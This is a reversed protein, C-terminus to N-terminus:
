FLVELGALSYLGGARIVLEIEASKDAILKGGKDYLKINIGQSLTQPFTSFFIYESDDDRNIRITHSKDEEFVINPNIDPYTYKDSEIPVYSATGAFYEEDAIPSVVVYDWKSILSEDLVLRVIAVVQQMNVVAPNDVEFGGYPARIGYYPAVPAGTNVPEIKTKVRGLHDACAVVGAPYSVEYREAMPVAVSLEGYFEDSRQLTYNKGNVSIVTGEKIPNEDINFDAKTNSGGRIILYQANGGQQYEIQELVAGSADKFIVHSTRTDFSDNAPIHVTIRYAPGLIQEKTATAGELDTEVTFNITSLVPLTTDISGSNSSTSPNTSGDVPQQDYTEIGGIIFPVDWRKDLYKYFAPVTSVALKKDSYYKALNEIVRYPSIDTLNAKVKDFVPASLDGESEIDSVIEQVLTTVESASRGNQIMCAFALLMGDADRTGTIDMDDFNGASGTFGMAKTLENQAQSVADDYSKGEKMLKKVRPRIATTMLNINAASDNSKVFAELYLPNASIAGALENFYYGEARLEFYPATTKGAIAFAGLDDSINAPFSEGTAVLDKGVAFATVQSGKVFQGKQAFGHISVDKSTEKQEESPTDPGQNNQEPTKECAIVALALAFIWFRKM